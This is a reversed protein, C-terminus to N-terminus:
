YKLVRQRREAEERGQISEYKHHCHTKHTYQKKRILDSLLARAM